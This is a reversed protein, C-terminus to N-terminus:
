KKMKKMSDNFENICEILCKEKQKKIDIDMQVFADLEEPTLIEKEKLMDILLDLKSKVENFEFHKEVSNQISGRAQRITEDSM